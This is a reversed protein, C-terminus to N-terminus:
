PAPRRSALKEERKLRKRRWAQYHKSCFGQAVHPRGCARAKCKRDSRPRGPRRAVVRGTAAELRRQLNRLDRKVARLEERDPAKKEVRALVRETIAEVLGRLSASMGLRPHRKARSGQRAM